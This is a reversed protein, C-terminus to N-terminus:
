KLYRDLSFTLGLASSIRLLNNVTVPTHIEVVDIDKNNLLNKVVKLDNFPLEISGNSYKIVVKQDESKVLCVIKDKLQITYITAPHLDLRRLPYVVKVGNKFYTNCKWFGHTPEVPSKYHLVEGFKLPFEVVEIM